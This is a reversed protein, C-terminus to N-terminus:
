AKQLQAPHSTSLCLGRVRRKDRLYQQAAAVEVRRPSTNPTQVMASAEGCQLLSFVEGRQPSTASRLSDPPPTNCLQWIGNSCGELRGSDGSRSKLLYAEPKSQARSYEACMRLFMMGFWDSVGIRMRAMSPPPIPPIMGARTSSCRSVFYGFRMSRASMM